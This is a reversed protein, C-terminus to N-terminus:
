TFVLPVEVLLFLSIIFVPLSVYRKKKKSDLTSRERQLLIDRVPMDTVKEIQQDLDIWDINLHDALRQAWYTKGSGMIGILFIKTVEGTGLPSSNVAIDM